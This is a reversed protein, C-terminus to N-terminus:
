SSSSASTMLWWAQDGIGWFRPLSPSAAAAVLSAALQVRKHEKTAGCVLRQHQSKRLQSATQRALQCTDNKQRNSILHTSRVSLSLPPKLDLTANLRTSDIRKTTTKHADHAPGCPLGTTAADSRSCCGALRLLSPLPCGSGALNLRNRSSLWICSAPALKAGIVVSHPVLLQAM